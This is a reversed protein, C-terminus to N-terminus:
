RRCSLEVGSPGQGQDAPGDDKGAPLCPVAIQGAIIQSKLEELRPRIDDVFGGSYSIDVGGSELDLNRIGPPLSGAAYDALVGYIAEDFRNVVSTLIHQRWREAEVVGPLRGITEYQDADVGIAWLERGTSESMYAAAEFVGVGSSGAAHLVIDAGHRYMDEAAERAAAPSAFGTWDPPATLYASLIEIEPDIARAGADFGAEFQWVAPVEVGGVFGITGTDTKLAAAAGALFAGEHDDFWLYTVNPETGVEGLIVYHTGPYARAVEHFLALDMAFVLILQSGDASLSRLEEVGDSTLSMLRDNGVWEFEEVARDFGSKTLYDIEGPGRQLLAVRHAPAAQLGVIALLVAIVLVAVAGGLAILGRRARRELSRQLRRREAQEEQVAESRDCDLKSTSM